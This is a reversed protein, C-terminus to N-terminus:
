TEINMFIKHVFNGDFVDIVGFTFGVLELECQPLIQPMLINLKKTDCKLKFKGGKLHLKQFYLNIILVWANFKLYSALRNIATMLGCKTFGSVCLFRFAFITSAFFTALWKSVWGLNLIVLSERVFKNACKRRRWCLKELSINEKAKYTWDVWTMIQFFFFFSLFHQSTFGTRQLLSLPNDSHLSHLHAAKLLLLSAEIWDIRGKKKRNMKQMYIKYSLRNNWPAAGRRTLTFKVNNRM